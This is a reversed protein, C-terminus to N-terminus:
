KRLMAKSVNRVDEVRKTWGRGFTSWHGLNQLFHLRRDCYEDIFDRQNSVSENMKNLTNPGIIGDEDAGVIIQLYKSARNVGSNVAFDFVLYDIGCPLEDGKIKDWYGKKYIPTVDFVTLNRMHDVSVHKCMHNEYTKKTVGLNTVGGPDDPHDVFGGEHKLVLKLSKEWNVLM